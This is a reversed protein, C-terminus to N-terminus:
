EREKKVEEQLEGIMRSILEEFYKGPKKRCEPPLKELSVPEGFRVTVDAPRVSPFHKEFIDDTGLMAVPIVRCKSKSAIKLTADHFPLLKTPDENRNRTGEPYVWVSIGSGIQAAADLITKLGQKIDSRDLFLCKINKMWQRLLPVNGIEAKAIFGTETKVFSYAILIDFDSRHNGVFLVAEDDPINETGYATIRTGTIKLLGRFVGQIILRCQRGQKKPDLKALIQEFILLPIGFILFCIVTILVAAIRIM